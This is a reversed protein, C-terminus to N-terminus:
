CVHQTRVFYQTACDQDVVGSIYGNAGNECSYYVYLSRVGNGCQDGNTTRYELGGSGYTNWVGNVDNGYWDGNDYVAVSPQSQYTCAQSLGNFRDSCVPASVYGCPRLYYTTSGTPYSLDYSLASLDKGNWGCTSPTNGGGGNHGNDQRDCENRTQTILAIMVIACILLIALLLVVLLLLRPYTQLTRFIPHLGSAPQDDHHIPVAVQENPLFPQQNNDVRHGAYNSNGM